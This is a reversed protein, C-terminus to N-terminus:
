RALVLMENGGRQFEYDSRRITCRVGLGTLEGIVQQLLAQQSHGGLDLLPFIRVEGRAVRLLEILALRHDRADLRDAYTFLFHSSLVLDFEGDDFPLDPLSGAVYREPHALLDRGFVLASAARVHLHGAADGYYDWVYRDSGAITHASGRETEHLVHAALVEPPRAYVPDAATAKAGAANAGATFGSGGGPCDLIRGELDEPTLAFMATYEEFSRASILYEGIDDPDPRDPM